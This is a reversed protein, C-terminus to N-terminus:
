QMELPIIGIEGALNKSNTQARGVRTTMGALGQGSLFNM